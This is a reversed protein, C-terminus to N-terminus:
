LGYDRNFENQTQCSLNENADQAKGESVGYSYCVNSALRFPVKGQAWGRASLFAFAVWGAFPLALM